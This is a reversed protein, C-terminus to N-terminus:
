EDKSRQHLSIPGISDCDPNGGTLFLLVSRAILGDHYTDNGNGHSM